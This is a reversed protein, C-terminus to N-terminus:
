KLSVCLNSLLEQGSSGSNVESVTYSEGQKGLMGGKGISTMYKYEQLKPHHRRGYAFIMPNPSLFGCRAREAKLVFYLFLVCIFMLYM